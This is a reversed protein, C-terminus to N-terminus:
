LLNATVHHGAPRREYQGERRTARLRKRTGVTKAHAPDKEPVESRRVLKARMRPIRAEVDRAARKQAESKRKRRPSHKDCEWRPLYTTSCNKAAPDRGKGAEFTLDDAALFGVQSSGRAHSM